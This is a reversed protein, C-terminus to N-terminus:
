LRDLPSKLNKIQNLLEKEYIELENEWNGGKTFVFWQMKWEESRKALEDEGEYGKTFVWVEDVKKLFEFIKKVRCSCCEVVICKKSNEALIDPRFGLFTREFYIQNEKYGESILLRKALSKQRGQVELDDLSFDTNLSRMKPIEREELVVANKMLLKSLFLEAEPDNYRSDGQNLINWVLTMAENLPTPSLQM